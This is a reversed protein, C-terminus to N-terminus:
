EQMEKGFAFGGVLRCVLSALTAFALDVSEMQRTGPIRSGCEIPISALILAGPALYALVRVRQLTEM